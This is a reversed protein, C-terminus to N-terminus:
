QEGHRAHAHQERSAATVNAVLTSTWRVRELVEADLRGHKDNTCGLQLVLTPQTAAFVIAAVSILM